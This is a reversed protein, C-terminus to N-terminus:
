AQVKTTESKRDQTVTGYMKTVLERRDTYSLERWNLTQTSQQSHNTKSCNKIHIPTEEINKPTPTDAASARGQAEKTPSVEEVTQAYIPTKVENIPITIQCGM